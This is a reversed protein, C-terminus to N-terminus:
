QTSDEDEKNAPQRKRKRTARSRKLQRVRWVVDHHHDFPLIEDMKHGVDTADFTYQDTQIIRCVGPECTHQVLLYRGGPELGQFALRVGLRAKKENPKPELDSTQWSTINDRRLVETVSVVPGDPPVSRYLAMAYFRNAQVIPHPRSPHARAQVLEGEPVYVVGPSPLLPPPFLSFGKNGGSLPDFVAFGKKTLGNVCVIHDYEKDKSYPTQVGLVVFRDEALQERLWSLFANTNTSRCLDWQIGLHDLARVSSPKNQGNEPRDLLFEGKGAKRINSLSFWMGMQLAFMQVTAEGCYGSHELWQRRFLLPHM